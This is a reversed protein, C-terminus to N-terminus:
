AEKELEALAAAGASVMEQLQKKYEERLIPDDIFDPKGTILAREVPELLNSVDMMEYHLQRVAALANHPTPAEKYRKRYPDDNSLMWRHWLMPTQTIEEWSDVQASTPLQKGTEIREIVDESYNFAQAFQWRSPFRSERAKRLDHHTYEAM